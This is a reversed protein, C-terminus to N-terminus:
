HEQPYLWQYCVQTREAKKRNYSVGPSYIENTIIDNDADMFNRVWFTWEDTRLDVGDLSLYTVDM